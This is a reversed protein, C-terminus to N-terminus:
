TLLASVVVIPMRIGVWLGLSISVPRLMFTTATTAALGVGILILPVLFESPPDAPGRARQTREADRKVPKKKKVVRPPIQPAESRTAGPRSSRKGTSKSPRSTESM